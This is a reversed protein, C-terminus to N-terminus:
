GEDDFRPVPRRARRVVPATPPRVARWAGAFGKSVGTLEIWRDTIEAAKVSANVLILGGVLWGLGGFVLVGFVGPQVDKPVQDILLATAVGAAIWWLLGLWIYLKRSRWHNRHRDCVPLTVAMKKRLVLCVVLWPLWGAFILLHVWGPMWAFTQRTTTVAGEGCRVCLPPFEEGGTEDRYVRITAM